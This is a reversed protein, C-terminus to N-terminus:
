IGKSLFHESDVRGRNFAPRGKKQYFLCKEIQCVLTCEQGYVGVYYLFISGFYEPMCEDYQFIKPFVNLISIEVLM